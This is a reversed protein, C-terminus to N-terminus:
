SKKCASLKFIKPWTSKKVLGSKKNIAYVDVAVAIIILVGKVLTQYMSHVGLLRMGNNMLGVLLVGYLAGSIKGVGQGMVIGGLVICLLVEGEYGEGAVPTAQQNFAALFFGTIAACVSCIVFTSIIIRASNIGCIWSANKNGGVAYVKRGYVTKTLVVGLGLAILLFVYVPMPIGLFRGSGLFLFLPSGTCPIIKIDLILQAVGFLIYKSALTILMSEAKLYYIILGHALGVAMAVVVSVLLGLLVGGPTYNAAVIIKVSIASAVAIVGGVSLDPGAVLATYIMGCTLIGYFSINLLVSILNSYTLFMAPCAITLFALLLLFIILRGNKLVDLVRKKM